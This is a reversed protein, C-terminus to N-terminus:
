WIIKQQKKTYVPFIIWIMRAEVPFSVGGGSYFCIENSSTKLFKKNVIHSATVPTENVEKYNAIAESYWIVTQLKLNNNM